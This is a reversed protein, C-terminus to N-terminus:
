LLDLNKLYSHLNPRNTSTPSIFGELNIKNISPILQLIEKFYKFQFTGMSGYYNRLAVNNGIVPVGALLLEPIKTLAGTAQTQYCIVANTSILLEDLENNSIDSKIIIEKDALGNRINNAQFGAVTIPFNVRHAQKLKSLQSLLKIAGEKTPPNGMHGLILFGDKKSARRKDRILELRNKESESPSYNLTLINEVEFNNLLLEDERSITLLGKCKKLAKIEEQLLQHKYKEIGQSPVLSEINHLHGIIPIKEKHFYDILPLFYIPDDIIVFKGINYNDIHKVWYKGINYRDLYVKRFGKTWYKFHRNKLAAFTMSLNNSKIKSYFDKSAQVECSVIKSFETFIQHVRKGGGGINKDNPPRSFYTTTLKTEGSQQNIM